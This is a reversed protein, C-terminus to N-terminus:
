PLEVRGLRRGCWLTAVAAIAVLLPFPNRGILLPFSAAAGWIVWTTLALDPDRSM